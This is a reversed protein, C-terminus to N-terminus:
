SSESSDDSRDSARDPARDPALQTPQDAVPKAAQEAAREAAQSARRNARRDAPRGEARTSSAPREPAWQHSSPSAGIQALLEAAERRELAHGLYTLEDYARQALPLAAEDMGRAAALRALELTAAAEAPRCGLSALRIAAASCLSEARGIAGQQRWSRAITVDLQASLYTTPSREISGAGLLLWREGEDHEDAAFCRRALTLAVSAASAAAWVGHSGSPTKILRDLTRDALLVAERRRGQTALLVARDAEVMAALFSSGIRETVTVAANLLNHAAEYDGRITNLLARGRIAALRTTERRSPEELPTLRNWADGYRGVLMYLEILRLSFWDTGGFEGLIVADGAAQDAATRELGHELWTCAELYADGEALAAGFMLAVPAVFRRQQDVTEFTAALQHGDALVGDFRRQRYAERYREFEVPQRISFPV